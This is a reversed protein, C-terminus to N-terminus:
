RGKYSPRRKELFAQVGEQYDETCGALRQLEEELDLQADLDNSMAANLAKKTLGLGRTPLEALRACLSRAEGMLEEDGVARYIMGLAAAEKASVKEALMMMATARATGVLRPLTLTGGSDPVLGLKSFSQIFAASEAALVFDCALAINAGAGAAVGNVAAVVPKEITRLARVIPNYSERVISQIPPPESGDPPIAEALDQGACFGRGAGTVLLARVDDDAAADALVEQFRRAMPRTFSNLVDPRNLTMEAISDVVRYIVLAESM